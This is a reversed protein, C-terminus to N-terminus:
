AHLEDLCGLSYSKKSNDSGSKLLAELFQCQFSCLSVFADTLKDQEITVKKYKIAVM